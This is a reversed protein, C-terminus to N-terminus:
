PANVEFWEVEGRKISERGPLPNANCWEPSSLCIHWGGEGDCTDCLGDYDDVEDMSESQYGDDCDWEECDQWRMSSGRRACQCDYDKADIPPHPQIIPTTM